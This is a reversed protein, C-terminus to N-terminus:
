LLSESGERGCIGLLVGFRGGHEGVDGVSGIVAHQRLVDEADAMALLIELRSVLVGVRGEM